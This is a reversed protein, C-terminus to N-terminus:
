PECELEIKGRIHPLSNPLLSKRDHTRVVGGICGGHLGTASRSCTTRLTTALYKPARPMLKKGCPLRMRSPAAPAGGDAPHMHNSRKSNKRQRGLATAM